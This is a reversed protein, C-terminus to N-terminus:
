TLLVTQRYLHEWTYVNEHISTRTYLRKRTYIYVYVQRKYVDLHTYSVSNLIYEFRNIMSKELMYRDLMKWSNIYARDGRRLEMGNGIRAHVLIKDINAIRSGGCIARVWLFYDEACPLHMYQRKYVDIYLILRLWCATYLM